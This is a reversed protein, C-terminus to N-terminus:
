YQVQSYLDVEVNVDDDNILMSDILIMSIM